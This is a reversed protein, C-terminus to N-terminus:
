HGSPQGSPGPSPVRPYCLPTHLNCAQLLFSHPECLGPCLMQTVLLQHSPLTKVPPCLCPERRRHTAPLSECQVGPTVMFLTVCVLPSKPGVGTESFDITAKGNVISPASNAEPADKEPVDDRKVSAQSGHLCLSPHTALPALGVPIQEGPLLVFAVELWSRPQTKHRPFRSFGAM